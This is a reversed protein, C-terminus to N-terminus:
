NARTSAWQQAEELMAEFRGNLAEAEPPPAAPTMAEIAAKRRIIPPVAKVEPPPPAPKRERRVSVKAKKPLVEAQTPPTRTSPTKKAPKQPASKWDSLRGGNARIFAALQDLLALHPALAQAVQEEIVRHVKTTFTDRLPAEGKGVIVWSAM